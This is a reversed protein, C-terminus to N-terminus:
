VVHNLFPHPRRVGDDSKDGGPEITGVSNSSAFPLRYMASVPSLAILSHTLVDFVVVVRTEDPSLSGRPTATSPLPLTYMASVKLLAILSHTREAFATAM